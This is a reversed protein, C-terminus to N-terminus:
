ATVTEVTAAFRHGVLDWLVNATWVLAFYVTAESVIPFGALLSTVLAGVAVMTAMYPLPNPIPRGAGTPFVPLGWEPQDVGGAPRAADSKWALLTRYLKRVEAAHRWPSRARSLILPITGERGSAADHWSLFVWLPDDSEPCRKGVQIEAVRERRLTFRVQEGQYDLRDGSLTMFGADWDSFGGYDLVRSEPSLGVFIVGECEAMQMAAGIQSRLKRYSWCSVTKSVAVRLLLSLAM